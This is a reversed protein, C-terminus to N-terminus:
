LKEIHSQIGILSQNDRSDVCACTLIYHKWCQLTQILYVMFLYIFIENFTFPFLTLNRSFIHVIVKKVYQM